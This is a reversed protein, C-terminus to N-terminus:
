AGVREQAAEQVQRRAQLGAHAGLGGCLRLQRVGTMATERVRVRVAAAVGARRPGAARGAARGMRPCQGHGRAVWAGGPVRRRDRQRHPCLVGGRM